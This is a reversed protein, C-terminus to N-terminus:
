VEVGGTPRVAQVSGRHRYLTCKVKVKSQRFHQYWDVLSCPMVYRWLRYNDNNWGGGGLQTQKMLIKIQTPILKWLTLTFSTCSTGWTIAYNEADLEDRHSWARHSIIINNAVNHKWFSPFWSLLLALTYIHLSAATLVSHCIGVYMCVYTCACMCSNVKKVDFRM